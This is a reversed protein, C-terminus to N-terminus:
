TCGWRTNALKLNHGTGLVTLLYAASKCQASM